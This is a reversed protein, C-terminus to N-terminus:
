DIKLIKLKIVGRPVNVDVVDGAKRGLLAEGIPSQNSIRGALADAEPPGVIQFHKKEGDQEVEVGSGLVVRGSKHAQEEDILEARRLTDEIEIIRGEIMGQQQKANEYEADNQSTGLEQAQHIMEAVAKRDEKLSALDRELREMGAKTLPVTNNAM